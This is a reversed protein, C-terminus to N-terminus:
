FGFTGPELGAALQTCLHATQLLQGALTQTDTFRTFTTSLFYISVKGRGRSDQSNHIYTLSFGSLFFFLFRKLCLNLFITDNLLCPLVSSRPKVCLKKISIVLQNHLHRTTRCMSVCDLKVNIHGKLSPPNLQMVNASNQYLYLKHYQLFCHCSFSKDNKAENFSNCLCCVTRFKEFIKHM